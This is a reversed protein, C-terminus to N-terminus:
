FLAAVQVLQGRLHGEGHRALVRPAGDDDDDDDDDDDPAPPSPGLLLVDHHGRLGAALEWNWSHRATQRYCAEKM